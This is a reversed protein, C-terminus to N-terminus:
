NMSSHRAAKKPARRLRNLEMLLRDDTWAPDKSKTPALIYDVESEFDEYVPWDYDKKNGLNKLKAEEIDAMLDLEQTELYGIASVVRQIEAKQTTVKKMSILAGVGSSRALALETHRQISIVLEKEHERHRQVMQRVDTLLSRAKMEMEFPSMDMDEDLNFSTFSNASGGGSGGLLGEVKQSKDDGHDLLIGLSLKSLTRALISRRGVRRPSRSRGSARSDGSVTSAATGGADEEKLPVRKDSQSVKAMSQTDVVSFSSRRTVSM